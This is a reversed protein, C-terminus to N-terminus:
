MSRCVSDTSAGVMRSSNPIDFAAYERTTVVNRSPYVMECASEPLSSSRIPVRAPNMSKTPIQVMADISWAAARLTKWREANRNTSPM